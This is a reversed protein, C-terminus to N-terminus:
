IRLSSVDQLWVGEGVALAHAVISLIQLARDLAQAQLRKPSLPGTLTSRYVLDTVLTIAWATWESALM